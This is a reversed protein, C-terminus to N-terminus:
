RRVRLRRFFRAVTQMVTNQRVDKQGLISLQGQLKDVVRVLAEQGIAQFRISIEIRQLDALESVTCHLFIQPDPTSFYFTSNEHWSSNGSLRALPFDRVGKSDELIIREIEVVAYDDVPDFRLAQIGSFSGTQFNIRRTGPEIKRGISSDDSIGGGIDIYLRSTFYNERVALLKDIWIEINQRFLEQHREFIRKFMAVKQWKEKSRVMSDSAVRYAFLYEPIQYVGRGRELLSLWFDYDEWGYIMGPDYGGVLEWDSRRFLASCFIVNDQLMESLSFEPLCWETEVAGFLRAQCYVIGIDPNGDLIMVAKELYRSDIRDDADLPLIYEGTAQSIGNNRAAALGQNNTTIVTTKDKRYNALLQNTFVDTSGDNVIIIEFDPLTQHLVSAVTEELFHGQNFCPIIVSVKPPNKL